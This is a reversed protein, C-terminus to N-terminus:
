ITGVVGVRVTFPFPTASPFPFMLPFVFTFPLPFPFTELAFAESTFAEPTFAELSVEGPEKRGDGRLEKGVDARDDILHVIETKGQQGPFMEVGHGVPDHVAKFARLHQLERAGAEITPPFQGVRQNDTEEDGFEQTPPSPEKKDLDRAQAARDLSRAAGNNGRVEGAVPRCGPALRVM